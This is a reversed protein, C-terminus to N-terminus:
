KLKEIHRLKILDKIESKDMNSFDMVLINGLWDLEEEDRKKLFNNILKFINASKGVLVRHTLCDKKYSNIFKMVENIIEQKM